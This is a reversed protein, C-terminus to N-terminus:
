VITWPRKIKLVHSCFLLSSRKSEIVEFFYYGFLHILSRFFSFPQFISPYSSRKHGFVGCNFCRILNSFVKAKHNKDGGSFLLLGEKLKSYFICSLKAIQNKTKEMLLFFFVSIPSVHRHSSSSQSFFPFSNSRFGNEQTRTGKWNNEM